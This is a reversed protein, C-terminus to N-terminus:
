HQHAGGGSGSPPQPPTSGPPSGEEGGHKHGRHHFFHLLPCAALLLFPLFPLVHARHEAIVFYLAIAVFGFFVFRSVSRLRNATAPTNGQPREHQHQM